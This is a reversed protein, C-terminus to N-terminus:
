QSFINSGDAQIRWEITVEAYAGNENDKLELKIIRFKVYNNKYTKFVYVQHQSINDAFLKWTYTGTELLEDFFDKAEDATNFDGALAYSAVLNPTDLYAGSVNGQVDTSAHVTIDPPPSENTRVKRAMEFSFGIAYYPGYAYLANDITFEGAYLAQKDKQCSVMIGALLVLGPILFICRQLKM